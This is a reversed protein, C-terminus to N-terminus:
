FSFLARRLSAGLSNRQTFSVIPEEAEKEKEKSKERELVLKSKSDEETSGEAAPTSEEGLARKRREIINRSRGTKRNKRRAEMQAKRQQRQIEKARQKEARLYQKHEILEKKVQWKYVQAQYKDQKRANEIIRKETHSRELTSVRKGKFPNYSKQAATSKRAQYGYGGGYTKLRSTTDPSGVNIHPYAFAGQVFLGFTLTLILSKSIFRFM